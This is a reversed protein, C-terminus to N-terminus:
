NAFIAEMASPGANYVYWEIKVDPGLRPAFWSKGQREFNRAVLAQVHTINPFHGVRITIDAAAVPGALIFALVLATLVSLARACLAAAGAYIQGPIERPMDRGGDAIWSSRGKRPSGAHVASQKM